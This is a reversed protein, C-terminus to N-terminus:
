YAISGEALRQAVAEVVGDTNQGFGVGGSGPARGSIRVPLLIGKRVEVIKSVRGIIKMCAFAIIGSTSWGTLRVLGIRCWAVRVLPCPRREANERKHRKQIQVKLLRANIKNNKKVVPMPLSRNIRSSSSPPMSQLLMMLKRFFFSRSCISGVTGAAAIRRANQTKGNSM